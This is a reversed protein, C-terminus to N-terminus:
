SDLVFKILDNSTSILSQQKDYIHVLNSDDGVVLVRSRPHDVLSILLSPVDPLDRRGRTLIVVDPEIRTLAEFLNAQSKPDLGNVEIGGVGALLRQLGEAFVSETHVVIVRRM